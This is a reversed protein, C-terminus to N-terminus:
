ISYITSTWCGMLYEYSPRVSFNRGSSFMLRSSNVINVCMLSIFTVQWHPIDQNPDMGLICWWRFLGLRSPWLPFSAIRWSNQLSWSLPFKCRLTNPEKEPMCRWQFGAIKFAAIWDVSARCGSPLLCRWQFGANQLCCACGSFDQMKLAASCNVSDRGDQLCGM